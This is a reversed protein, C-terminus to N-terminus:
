VNRSTTNQGLTTAKQDIIEYVPTSTDIDDSLHRAANSITLRWSAGQKSDISIAALEKYYLSNSQTPEHAAVPESDKDDRFEQISTSL